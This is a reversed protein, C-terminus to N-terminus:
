SVKKLGKSIALKHADTMPGRKGRRALVEPSLKWGSGNGKGKYGGPSAKRTATRKAIYEAPTKRGKNWSPPQIWEHKPPKECVLERYPIPLEHPPEWSHKKM